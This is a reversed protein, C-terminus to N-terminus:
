IDNKQTDQKYNKLLNSLIDSLEILTHSDFDFNLYYCVQSEPCSAIIAKSLLWYLNEDM